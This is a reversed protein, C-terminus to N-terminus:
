YVIIESLFLWADEGEGVKEKKIKPASKLIIKIYRALPDKFYFNIKNDQGYGSEIEEATFTQYSQFTKGDESGFVEISSPLYIWNLEEKLIYLGVTRIETVKGLDISIEPDKGRWGLWENSLRPAHGARGDVLKALGGSNYSEGPPITSSVIKELAKHVLFEETFSHGLAKGNEVYNAILIATKSLVFPHNKVYTIAAGVPEDSEQVTYEIAGDNYVSQLDVEVKGNVVKTKATVDFLSTAYHVDLKDLLLFHTRLRNKFDEFGPKQEGTWLVEALACMRPLAMYEAHEATSIYETWLNAQAGLIYNKQESTLIAPTPEYAYVKEIPTFGGIALPETNKNGQYHDFYCHTGPSMVVFHKQKAAAIGGEEGRWSMVAANPALGGELIEDWGIISRGKSTVYADIKKIFYSQLENENKLRNSKMVAQCTPCTKWRTKPVEDGGIHIYTSPFLVMVEDLINELFRISSEGSCFVDDSVGWKTMPELPLKNCSYEPYASLAALAHGPMEIEPIITIHRDQAYSVIEKIEEQTYYGDVPKGDGVYPVFNKEVMTEKRHSGIKTLLPYQKIEIRWGQDDTLHWHFTNMKHIALLDIYKKIFEKPFFHRCVDLHMGRWSYAPMDRLDPTTIGPNSKAEFMLQALSMLGYFVGDKGGEIQLNEGAKNTISYEERKLAPNLILQIAHLSGEKEEMNTIGMNSLFTTFVKIDQTFEQNTTYINKLDSLKTDIGSTTKHSSKLQTIPAPIINQSGAKMCLLVLVPIFLSIRSNMYFFKDLSVIEPYVDYHKSSFQGFVFLVM